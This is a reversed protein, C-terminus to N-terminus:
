RSISLIAAGVLDAVFQHGSGPNSREDSQGKTRRHVIRCPEALGTHYAGIEPEGRLLILGPFRVPITTDALDAIRDHSCSQKLRRM